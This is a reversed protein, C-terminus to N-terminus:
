YEEEMVDIDTEEAAEVKEKKPRVKEDLVIDKKHAHRLNVQAGLVTGVLKAFETPNLNIYEPQVAQRYKVVFTDQDWFEVGIHVLLPEAEAPTAVSMSMLPLRLDVTRKRKSRKSIKITEVPGSMLVKEVCGDWDVSSESEAGKVLAVVWEVELLSASPSMFKLPVDRVEQISFSSPLQEGLRAQFDAPDLSHVMEFDFIEADSTMGLPLPQAPQVRPQQNFGNTFSIPLSSRLLARDLM